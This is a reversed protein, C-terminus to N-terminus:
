ILSIYEGSEDHQRYKEKSTTINQKLKFVYKQTLKKEIFDLVFFDAQGALYLM